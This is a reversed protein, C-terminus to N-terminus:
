VKITTWRHGQWLITFIVAQILRYGIFSAWLWTLGLGLYPGLLWAAPLGILWQCFISVVMVQRAAGAGLLANLLVIGIADGVITLGTLRLPAVALELTAREHIFGSLVFEPFLALLLGISGMVGVAIKVVDWGWQRADAPDGRGLAQGVLSAATLGLGNGPLIMVLTVNLLVSAAALERTGVLGVIWLFLSFGVSFFFLQISAPLSLRLMTVMTEGRPLRALFGNERAYNNAQAAYYVTGLVTAIASALGAGFVGLEPFGFNGYILLYNLVINITHMVILTRLYVHSRNVGNWYGRFSFNMGLAFVAALRAQLYPIAEVVVAPDDNLLPFYRDATVILVLSLPLAIVCSLFLGGNLPVAAESSRGEGLRRAAMAQVGSSLGMVAAGAVFHAFSAIGVAALAVSGLTGVMALDVLNLVNQSIQGGVIPLSLRRISQFRSKQM